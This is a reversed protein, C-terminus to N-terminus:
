WPGAPENAVNWLRQKAAEVAVPLWKVTVDSQLYWQVHGDFFLVNGGGRHISGVMGRDDAVGDIQPVIYLDRRGDASTDAIIIFESPARVNTAKKCSPELPQWPPGALGEYRATGMGRFLPDSPTVRWNAGASNYGYSFWTGSAASSGGVLLREGLEYGFSTHVEQALVVAGPNRNTWECREDQAPCYFLKQNGNLLKRLRVPWCSAYGGSPNPSLFTANPFYQYQQTYMTMAQGIQRLNSSCQVTQAQQKVKTLVPLLVAILVAIIAIVVLLEVLTFARDSIRRRM